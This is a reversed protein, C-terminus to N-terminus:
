AEHKRSRREEELVTPPGVWRRSVTERLGLFGQIGKRMEGMREESLIIVDKSSVLKSLLEAWTRCGLEVKLRKLEKLVDEPLNKVLITALSKVM